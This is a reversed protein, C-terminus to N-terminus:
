EYKYESIDIVDDFLPKFTNLKTKDEKDKKILIQSTGDSSKVKNLFAHLFSFINKMSKYQYLKDLKDIMVFKDNDGWNDLIRSSLVGLRTLDSPNNIRDSDIKNQLSIPINQDYNVSLIHINEFKETLDELYNESHRTYSILLISKNETNKSFKTTYMNMYERRNNDDEYKLLTNQNLNLSLKNQIMKKSEDEDSKPFNFGGINEQENNEVTKNGNNKDIDAKSNNRIRKIINLIGTKSLKNLSSMDYERLDDITNINSVEGIDQNIYESNLQVMTFLEDLLIDESEEITKEDLFKTIHPEFVEYNINYKDKNIVFIIPLTQSKSRIYSLLKFDFNKAFKGVMCDISEHEITNVIKNINNFIRINVKDSLTLKKYLYSNTDSNFLLVDFVSSM